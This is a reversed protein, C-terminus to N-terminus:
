LQDFEFFNRVNYYCINQIVKGLEEESSFYEGREILEGFYNCLVRRYLEHPSLLYFQPQGYAYRGIREGSVSQRM